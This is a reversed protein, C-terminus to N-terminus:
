DDKDPTDDGDERPVADYEELMEDRLCSDFMVAESVSAVSADRAKEPNCRVIELCFQEQLRRKALIKDVSVISLPDSANSNTIALKDLTYKKYATVSCENQAAQQATPRTQKLNKEPIFTIAILAAAVIVAGVVINRHKGQIM